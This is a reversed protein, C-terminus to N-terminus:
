DDIRFLGGRCGGGKIGAWWGTDSCGSGQDEGDRGRGNIYFIFECFLM